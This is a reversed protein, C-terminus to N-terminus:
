TDDSSFHSYPCSTLASLSWLPASDGDSNYPTKRATRRMRRSPWSKLRIAMTAAAAATKRASQVSPVDVAAAKREFSEYVCFFFSKLASVSLVELLAWMREQPLGSTM